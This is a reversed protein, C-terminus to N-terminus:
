WGARHDPDNVNPREHSSWLRSTPTPLPKQLPQAWLGPAHKNSPLAPRASQIYELSVVEPM